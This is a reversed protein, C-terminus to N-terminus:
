VSGGVRGSEEAAFMRRLASRLRADFDNEAWCRLCPTSARTVGTRVDNRCIYRMGADIFAFGSNTLLFMKRGAEKFMQPFPLPWGHATQAPARPYAPHFPPVFWVRVVQLM